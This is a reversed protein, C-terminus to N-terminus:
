RDLPEDASHGREAEGEIEVFNQDQRENHPGGKNREPTQLRTRGHEVVPHGQEQIDWSAIPPM